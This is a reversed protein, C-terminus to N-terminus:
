DIPQQCPTEKVASLCAVLGVIGGLVGARGDWVPLFYGISIGWLSIINQLRHKM